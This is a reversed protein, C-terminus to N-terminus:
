FNFHYKNSAYHLLKGSKVVSEVNVYIHKELDESKEAPEKPENKLAGSV